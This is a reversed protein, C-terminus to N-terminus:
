RVGRGASHGTVFTMKREISVLPFRERWPALSRLRLSLCFAVTQGDQWRGVMERTYDAMTAAYARIRMAHFAVDQGRLNREIMPVFRGYVIVFGM